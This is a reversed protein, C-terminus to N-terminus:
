TSCADLSTWAGRTVISVLRCLSAVPIAQVWIESLEVDPLTHQSTVPALVTVHSGVFACCARDM